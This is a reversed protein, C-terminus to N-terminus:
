DGPKLVYDPDTPTIPLWKGLTMDWQGRVDRTIVFQVPPEDEVSVVVQVQIQKM